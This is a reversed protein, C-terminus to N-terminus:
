EETGKGGSRNDQLAWSSDAELLAGPLERVGGPRTGKGLVPAGQGEAPLSCVRCPHFIPNPIEWSGLVTAQYAICCNKDLHRIFSHIIPCWFPRRSVSKVHPHIAWASQESNESGEEACGRNHPRIHLSHSM